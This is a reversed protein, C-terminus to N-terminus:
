AQTQYNQWIRSSAASCSQGPSIPMAPLLARLVKELNASDLRALDHLSLGSTNILESRVGQGLTAM